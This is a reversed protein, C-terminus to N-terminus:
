QPQILRRATINNSIILQDLREKLSRIEHFLNKSEIFEMDNTLTVDLALERRQILSELLEIEKQLDSPNM